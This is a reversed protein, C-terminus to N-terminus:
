SAIYNRLDTVCSRNQSKVAEASLDLERAVDDVNKGKFFLLDLMQICRPKLKRVVEGTGISDIRSADGSLNVFTGSVPNTKQAATQRAINVMWSFLRGKSEDYNGIQNWINVITQQLADEAQDRDAVRSAVVAYLSKSYRTFLMTLARDDKAKLQIILENDAMINKVFKNIEQL